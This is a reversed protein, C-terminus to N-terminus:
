LSLIGQQPLLLHTPFHESKSSWFNTPLFFFFVYNTRWWVNKKETPTSIGLAVHPIQWLKRVLELKADGPSASHALANKPTQSFLILSQRGRTESRHSGACSLAHLWCLLRPFEHEIKVLFWLAFSFALYKQCPFDNKFCQLEGAWWGLWNVCASIWYKCQLLLFICM